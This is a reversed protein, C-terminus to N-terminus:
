GTRKNFPKYVWFLSPLISNTEILDAFTLSLAALGGFTGFGLIYKICFMFM